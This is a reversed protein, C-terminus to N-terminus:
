WIARYVLRDMARHNGEIVNGVQFYALSFVVQQGCDNLAREIWDDAFVEIPNDGTPVLRRFPEETVRGFFRNALRNQQNNGDLAISFFRLNQLPNASALPNIM